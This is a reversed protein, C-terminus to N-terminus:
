SCEHINIQKKGYAVLKNLGTEVSKVFKGLLKEKTYNKWSRKKVIEIESAKDGIKFWILIQDGTIPQVSHIKEILESNRRLYVYGTM